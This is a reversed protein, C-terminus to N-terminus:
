EWCGHCVFKGKLFYFSTKFGIYGVGQDIDFLTDYEIRGRVGGDIEPYEFEVGIDEGCYEKATREKFEVGIDKFTKKLKEYDTM